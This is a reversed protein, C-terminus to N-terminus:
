FAKTKYFFEISLLFIKYMDVTQNFFDLFVIHDNKLYLATKFTHIGDSHLFHLKAGPKDVTSIEIKKLKGKNILNYVTAPTVKLYQLVGEVTLIEDGGSKPNM